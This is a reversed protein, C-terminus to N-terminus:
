RKLRAAEERRRQTRARLWFVLFFAAVFLVAFLAAAIQSVAGLELMISPLYFSSLGFVLMLCAAAILANRTDRKM